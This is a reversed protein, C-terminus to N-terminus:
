AEGLIWCVLACLLHKGLAVIATRLVVVLEPSGRHMVTWGPVRASRGLCPAAVGCLAKM